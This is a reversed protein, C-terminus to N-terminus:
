PLAVGWLSQLTLLYVPKGAITSPLTVSREALVILAYIDDHTAYKTLQCLLAKPQPKGKKIEIGIGNIWFDIRRGKGLVKEHVFSLEEQALATAVRQHLDTEYPIFPTRLTYLARLVQSLVDCSSENTKM